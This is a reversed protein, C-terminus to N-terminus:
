SILSVKLKCLDVLKGGDNLSKILNTHLILSEALLVRCQVFLGTPIQCLECESLDFIRNPNEKAVVMLHEFRKKAAKSQKTSKFLPM